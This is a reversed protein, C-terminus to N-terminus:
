NRVNSDYFAKVEDGPSKWRGIMKLVDRTFDKLSEIDGKWSLQSGCIVLLNNRSSLKNNELADDVPKSRFNSLDSSSSICYYSKDGLCRIVGRALHENEVAYKRAPTLPLPDGLVRLAQKHRQSVIGYPLGYMWSVNTYGLNFYGVLRAPKSFDCLLSFEFQDHAM